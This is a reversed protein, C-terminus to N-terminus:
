LDDGDEIKTGLVGLDDGAADALALDEGFDVVEARGGRLQLCVADNADDEGTARAAHEGFVCRHGVGGEELQADGDEADAVADLELAVEEAAFDGLAGVAFVAVANEGEVFGATEELAEGLLELDPIGVAVAEDSKRGAVSGDAGGLVGLKGDDFVALAVEVADLEVGLNEVGFATDIDDAVEEEDDATGLLVPGGFVVDLV